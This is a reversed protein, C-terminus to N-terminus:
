FQRHLESQWDDIILSRLIDKVCNSIEVQARDSILKSMAGRTRINDELTNAFQEDSKIRYVDTVLTKTGVFIQASTSGNDIIPTDSYVTDTAASEDRQKVNLARFPSLYNMKLLTSMPTRTHQTSQQFTKKIVKRYM